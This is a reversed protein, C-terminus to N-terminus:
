QKRISYVRIPRKPLGDGEGLVGPEVDVDGIRNVVDMGDIVRGFITYQLPLTAASDLCVFFQSTGTGPAPKRAMAVVGQVYGMKASKTEPDLEETLPEGTATQGGRGWERRARRERTRRDGMQIVFHHAVRHVLIGDYYRKAVLGLFNEVTKPAETGYLGISFSGMSTRVDVVDTIEALHDNTISLAEKVAPTIVQEAPSQEAPAQESSQGASVEPAERPPDPEPTCSTFLIVAGVAVRYLVFSKVSHTRLYRLLFAISWYGSLGAAITAALLEAGGQDWQLHDLEGVFELVGAGGIAPISMLFSFRAAHERSLGRFLGAMITTGSRSSGPILALVQACGIVIADMLTMQSSTKTFRATTDAWWLLVGVGILGTAIVTLEKTLSGEIVDKLALGVVVIPITGVIVFWGMRANTGQQSFAVRQSGVNERVFAAVIAVIDRRFYALVAALTGLQITAMFATWREPHAPDIVDLWAAAITLHATSSIPIFESLGQIVGLLLAVLMSM